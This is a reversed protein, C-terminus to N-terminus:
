EARLRLNSDHFVRCRTREGKKKKEITNTMDISLEAFIDQIRWGFVDTGFPSRPWKQYNHDPLSPCFLKAACVNNTTSFDIIVSIEEFFIQHALWCRYKVNNWAKFFQDLLAYFQPQDLQLTLMHENSSVQGSPNKSSLSHISLFFIHVFNALRGDEHLFIEIMLSDPFCGVM